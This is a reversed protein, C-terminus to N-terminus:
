SESAGSSLHTLLHDTVQAHTAYWIEGPFRQELIQILRMVHNLYPEGIHELRPLTRAIHTHIVVQGGREVIQYAREVQSALCNAPIHLLPAFDSSVRPGLLPPSPETLLTYTRDPIVQKLNSSLAGYRYGRDRLAALLGPPVAWGPPRIGQPKGFGATELTKEARELINYCAEYSLGAFEQPSYRATANFHILGHLAIEYGGESVKNRLWEVWEAHRPNDLAFTGPAYPRQRSIVRRLPQFIGTPFDRRGIWDPTVFLTIAIQPWNERLRNLFRFTGNDRDGGFDLGDPDRFGEPHIDDVDLTLVARKGEPWQFTTDMM